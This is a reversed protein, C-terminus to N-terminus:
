GFTLQIVSTPDKVRLALRAVVRFCYNGDVDQQTFTTTADFGFVVDMSGGGVSVLLGMASHQTDKDSLLAGTWYLGAAAFPRLRGTLANTDTDLDTQLVLAYPGYNGTNQLISCAKRVAQVINEGHGKPEGSQQAVDVVQKKPLPEPNWNVLGGDILDGRYRVRGKLLSSSQGGSLALRGKFIVLDMAQALLNASRTALTIAAGTGSDGSNHSAHAVQQSTLAFEVWYENLRITAGEDITLMESDDETGSISDAPVTTVFPAVVKVPL